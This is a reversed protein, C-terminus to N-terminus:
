NPKKRGTVMAVVLNEKHMRGSVFVGLIHLGALFLTLYTFTKHLGELLEEQPTEGGHGSEHEDDDDDDERGSVLLLMGAEPPASTEAATKSGILPALPGQNEELALLAMGSGTTVTLSFLLAIIMAAGAPNHGIYRKSKGKLMNGLYTLTTRPGRVFDSFRAHRTGILGWILRWVVVGAVTYGAVHHINQFDDGSFYATLVGGVLLWHGIRVLPDWVKLSKSTNNESM